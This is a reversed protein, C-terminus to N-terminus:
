GVFLLGLRCVLFFSSYCICSIFSRDPCIWCWLFGLRRHASWFLLYRRTGPCPHRNDGAEQLKHWLIRRSPSLWDSHLTSPTWVVHPFATYNSAKWPNWQRYRLRCFAYLVWMLPQVQVCLICGPLFVFEMYLLGFTTCRLNWYKKSGPFCRWSLFHGFWWLYFWWQDLWWFLPCVKWCMYHWLWIGTSNQRQILLKM